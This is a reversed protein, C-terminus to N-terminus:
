HLVAFKVPSGQQNSPALLYIGNDLGSTDLYLVAQEPAIDFAQLQRGLADLLLLYNINHGEPLAVSAVGAAPNPRIALDNAAAAKAARNERLGLPCEDNYTGSTELQEALLARAIYVGEGGEAVCQQAIQTLTNVGATSFGEFGAAFRQLLLDNVTKLNQGSATAQTGIGNNIAQLGSLAAALNAKRALVLASLEDVKQVMSAKKSEYLALRAADLSVQGTVPDTVWWEIAGMEDTLAGLELNLQSAQAEQASPLGIAAEYAQEFDIFKAIDTAALSSHWTALDPELTTTQQLRDLHRFLKLKADFEVEPGYETGIGANLLGIHTHVARLLKDDESTLTACSTNDIGSPSKTFWLSSSPLYFPYTANGQVNEVMGSPSNPSPTFKGVIYQSQLALDNSGHFRAKPNGASSPDFRNGLKDQPGTSAAPGNQYGYVLNFPGWAGSFDNASIFNGGCSGFISLATRAQNMQNCDVTTMPAGWLEVNSNTGGPTRLNNNGIVVGEGGNISINTRGASVGNIGLLTNFPKNETISARNAVSFFINRDIFSIPPMQDPPTTGANLGKNNYVSWNHSGGGIGSLWVNDSVSNLDCGIISGSSSQVTGWVNNVCQRMTVNNIESYEGPANTKRAIGTGFNVINGNKVRLDQTGVTYIGNGRGGFGYCNIDDVYLKKNPKAVFIGNGCGDFYPNKAMLDTGELYIGYDKMNRFQLGRLGTTLDLTSTNEFHLGQNCDEFYSISNWFNNSGTFTINRLTTGFSGVGIGCNAIKSDEFHFNANREMEVGISADTLTSQKGLIFTGGIPTGQQLLIGDWVAGNCGHINIHNTTLVKQPNIKISSGPMMILESYVLGNFGGVDSTFWYSQNFDMDGYIAVRQPLNGGGLNSPALPGNPGTYTSLSSPQGQVGIEIIDDVEFTEVDLPPLSPNSAYYLTLTFVTNPVSLTGTFCRSLTGNSVLEIDFSLYSLGTSPNVVYNFDDEPLDIDFNATPYSIVVQIDDCGAALVGSFYEFCVQGDMSGCPGYFGTINFAYPFSPCNQSHLSALGFTGLILFALIPKKM